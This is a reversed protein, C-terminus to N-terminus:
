NIYPQCNKKFIEVSEKSDLKANNIRYVGFKFIVSRLRGIYEEKIIAYRNFGEAMKSLNEPYNVRLRRFKAYAKNRNLNLMYAEISESISSFIRIHRQNGSWNKPKIGKTPDPSVHGFLNNGEFVFRSTGWGSELAAMGVAIAPPVPRIRHDLDYRIRKKEKDSVSSLNEDEDIVNYKKAIDEILKLDEGNWDSKSAVTMVADHELAIKENESLVIPLIIQVFFRRREVGELNKIEVPIKEVFIRPINESDWTYGLFDYAAQVEDFSTFFIDAHLYFFLHFLIFVFLFRKM